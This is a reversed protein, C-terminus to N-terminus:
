PQTQTIKLEIRESLMKEMYHLYNRRKISRARVFREVAPFLNMLENFTEYECYYLQTHIPKNERNTAIYSYESPSDFLIEYEGFFSEEILDVLILDYTECVVAVTNDKM